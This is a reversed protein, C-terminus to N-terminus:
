ILKDLETKCKNLYKLCDKASKIVDKDLSCKEEELERINQEVKEVTKGLEISLGKVSAIDSMRDILVCKSFMLIKASQRIWYDSGTQALITAMSASGTGALGLLAGGGTIIATGGAMGLGGAALSGGGVIALSASTLAAGHLGVVAEGAILAAIAPAFAFALGGVAVAAVVAIGASIVAKQTSGKVTGVYKKYAERIANIETQSIITQRRAFQDDIYNYKERKLKKFSEDDKVGLSYYPKFIVLESALLYACRLNEESPEIGNFADYIKNEDTIFFDELDIEMGTLITKKWSDLWLQKKEKIDPEKTNEIDKEVAIGQLSYLVRTQAPTLSLIKLIEKSLMDQVIKEGEDKENTRRAKDKRQFFMKIDDSWYQSDSICAFVFRGVGAINIETFLTKAFEEKNKKEKLVAKVVAGSINIGVFCGSSILIMRSVLRNNFPLINQVDVQKLEDFSRIKKGKLEIALKKIFYFARVICENVLVSISSEYILSVLSNMEIELDFAKVEGDEGEYQSNEFVNKIWESFVEETGIISRIAEEFIQSKYLEKLLKKISQPINMDELPSRQSAVVDIGLNYIWYLVGYVIKEFSNRGIVYYGPVNETIIGKEGFRYKKGSFQTFISFILGAVSPHCSLYELWYDIGDDVESRLQDDFFTVFREKLFTYAGSTDSKKYGLTKAVLLVYKDWEKDKWENIRELKENSLKFCSFLGTIVGSSASLLYYPYDKESIADEFEADVFEDGDFTRDSEFMNIDINDNFKYEFSYRSADVLSYKVVPIEPIFENDSEVQVIKGNKRLVMEYNSMIEVGKDMSRHKENLKNGYTGNQNNYCLIPTM